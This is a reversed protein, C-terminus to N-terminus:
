LVLTRAAISGRVMAVLEAGDLAVHAPLALATGALSGHERRHLAVYPLAAALALAPARRALVVGALAVLLREHAVKWFM